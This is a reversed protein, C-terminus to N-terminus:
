KATENKKKGFRNETGNLLRKINAKHKYIALAGLFATIGIMTPSGQLFWVAFPLCFAASISALSMIKMQADFNIAIGQM